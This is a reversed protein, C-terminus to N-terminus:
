AAKRLISQASQSRVGTAWARTFDNVTTMRCQGAQNNIEAALGSLSQTLAGDAAGSISLHVLGNALDTALSRTAKSVDRQTRLTRTVPVTWLGFRVRRPEGSANRNSASHRQHHAASLVTSCGAKAFLDGHQMLQSGDEAVTHLQRADLNFEVITGRIATAVDQRTALASTGWLGVEDSQSPIKTSLLRRASEALWTIAASKGDLKSRFNEAAKGFEPSLEAPCTVTILLTPKNALITM